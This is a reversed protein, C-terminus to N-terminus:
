DKVFRVSLALHEYEPVAKIYIFDSTERGCLRYPANDDDQVWFAFFRDEIYRGSEVYGSFKANFGFTDNGGDEKSLIENLKDGCATRLFRVDAMTPIHWGLPAIRKAAEYTYFMGFDNDKLENDGCAYYDISARLIMKSQAKYKETLAINKATWIANGIKVVKGLIGDNYTMTNFLRERTVPQINLKEEIYENYTKM